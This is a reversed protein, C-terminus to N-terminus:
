RFDHEYLKIVKKMDSKKINNKIKLVALNDIKKYIKIYDQVVLYYPRLFYDDFLYICKSNKNKLLSILLSIM